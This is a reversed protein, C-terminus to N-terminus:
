HVFVAAMMGMAASAFRSGVPRPASSSSSSTSPTPPPAAAMCKGGSVCVTGAPCCYDDYGPDCYYQRKNLDSIGAALPLYTNSANSPYPGVSLNSLSNISDKFGGAVGSKSYADVPDQAYVAPALLGLTAMAVLSAAKMFSRM